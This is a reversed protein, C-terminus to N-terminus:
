EFEVLPQGERVTDGAAALVAKIKGPGPSVISTKMKMAEILVLVQGAQVQEGARCPVEIVTGAIPSAIARESGAPVPAPPPAAVPAPAVVPLAAPPAFGEGLELVEVDVEYAIGHVTIKLKM